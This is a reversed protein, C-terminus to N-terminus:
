GGLNFLSLLPLMSGIGGLFQSFGSPQYQQPVMNSLLSAYGSAQQTWPSAEPTQERFYSYLRDLASQRLGQQASGLGYAQQAWSMPAQFYQQGLSSLGSAAQMARNAANEMANQYMDAYNAQLGTMYQGSVDAIQRQAPTSWRTGTLGAQEMRQKAEREINQQAQALHAGYWDQNMVPQGQTYYGYTGSAVDWEPPTQVTTMGAGTGYPSGGAPPNMSYQQILESTDIM